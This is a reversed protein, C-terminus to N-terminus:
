WFFYMDKLNIGGDGNIDNKQITAPQFLNVVWLGADALTVNGDGNLDPNQKPKPEVVYAIENTKPTVLTGLGDALAFSTKDIRITATGEKKVSFHVTMIKGKKVFGGHQLTGGSFTIIGIDNFPTPETVWLDIMSDTRDISTVALLDNPFSLAAEVVNIPSDTEVAVDVSFTDGVHGVTTTAALSMDSVPNKEPAIVTVYSLLILFFIPSSCLIKRKHKKILRRM